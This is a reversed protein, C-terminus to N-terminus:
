RAGRLDRRDAPQQDAPAGARLRVAGDDRRLGLRGRRAGRVLRAPLERARAPGPRRDVPLPGAAVADIAGRAGDPQIEFAWAPAPLSPECGLAPELRADSIDESPLLPEIAEAAWGVVRLPADPRAYSPLGQGEPWLFPGHGRWVGDPDPQLLAAFITEGPLELPVSEPAPCAGLLGLGAVLGALHRV